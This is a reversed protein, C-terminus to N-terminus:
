EHKSLMIEGSGYRIGRLQFREAPTSDVNM